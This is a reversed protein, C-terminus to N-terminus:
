IYRSYKGQQKKHETSKNKKKNKKKQKNKQKSFLNKKEKKM